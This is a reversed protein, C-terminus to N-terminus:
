RTPCIALKGWKGRQSSVWCVQNLLFDLAIQVYINAAAIVKDIYVYEDRQGTM